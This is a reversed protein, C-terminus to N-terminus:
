QAAQEIEVPHLIGKRIHDLMLVNRNTRLFPFAFDRALLPSRSAIDFGQCCFDTVERMCRQPLAM